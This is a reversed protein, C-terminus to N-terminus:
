IHILSLHAFDEAIQKKIAQVENQTAAYHEGRWKWEMQRFCRDGPERGACAECGEHEIRDEVKLMAHPQLRNTLIINPYMAAVDLHYILPLAECTTLHSLEELKGLIERKGDEYDTVEELPCKNEVEIAYKLDQDVSAMLEKYASPKLHFSTPFDARYVGSELCEVHGGIYTETELLRGGAWKEAPESHKNPCLIGAEAAQVM